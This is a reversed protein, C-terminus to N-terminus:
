QSTKILSENQRCGNVATQQTGTSALASAAAACASPPDPAPAACLFLAPALSVDWRWVQWVCRRRVASLVSLYVAGGVAGLSRGWVCMWAHMVVRPPFTSIQDPSLSSSTNRMNSGEDDDDDDDDDRANRDQYIIIFSYFELSPTHIM